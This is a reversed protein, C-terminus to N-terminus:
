FCVGQKEAMPFVHMQQRGARQAFLVWCVAEHKCKCVSGREALSELLMFYICCKAVLLMEFICFLGLNQMLFGGLFCGYGGRQRWHVIQELSGLFVACVTYSLYSFFVKKM